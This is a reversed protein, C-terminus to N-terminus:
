AASLPTLAAALYKLLLEPAVSSVKVLAFQVCTIPPPAITGGILIDDPTEVGQRMTFAVGAEKSALGTVCSEFMTQCTCFLAPTDNLASVKVQAASLPNLPVDVQVPVATFWGGCWVDGVEADFQLQLNATSLTSITGALVPLKPLKPVVVFVTNITGVAVLPAGVKPAVVLM